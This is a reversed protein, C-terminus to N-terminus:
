RPGASLLPPMRGSSYAEEIQGSLLQHVTKGDPLMVDALFERELTSGGDAIIELKAKCILLLRRWAARAAQAAQKVRWEQRKAKFGPSKESCGNMAQWSKPEFSSAPATKVELRVMRGAMRFQIAAVGLEEDEYTARQTAGHKSLLADLEARTREVPVETSEGFRNV